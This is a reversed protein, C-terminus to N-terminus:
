ADHDSPLRHVEGCLTLSKHLLSPLNLVPDPRRYKRPHLATRTLESQWNVAALSPSLVLCWKRQKLRELCVTGRRRSERRASEGSECGEAVDM